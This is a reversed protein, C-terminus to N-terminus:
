PVLLMWHQNLERDLSRANPLCQTLAEWFLHGHNKIRTHVLEHLLIYDVLAEPLHVLMRNLSINNKHSCSGWRTKQGRVSVRNYTFGHLAALHALRPVLLRRADEPDPVPMKPCARIQNEILAIRGLHMKLWPTKAEAVAAAQEFSVGRPVAIRVGKFPKVSLNIRRARASRELLVEGVGSINIKKSQMPV